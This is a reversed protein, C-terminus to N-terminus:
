FDIEYTLLMLLENLSIHPMSYVYKKTKSNFIEPVYKIPLSSLVSLECLSIDVEREFDVGDKDKVMMIGYAEKWFHLEPLNMDGVKSGSYTRYAKIYELKCARPYTLNYIEIDKKIDDPTLTKFYHFGLKPNDPLIHTKEEVTLHSLDNASKDSTFMEMLISNNKLLELIDILFLGEIDLRDNLYRHAEGTVDKVEGKMTKILKGSKIQLKHMM